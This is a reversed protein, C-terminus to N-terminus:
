REILYAIIIGVVLLPTIMTWSLANLGLVRGLILSFPTLIAGVAPNYIFVFACFLTFLIQLLLGFEAGEFTESLDLIFKNITQGPNIKLYLEAEYIRGNLVEHNFLLVGSPSTSCETGLLEKNRGIRFVRLCYESGINSADNYEARFNNTVNNYTILSTIGLLDFFEGAILGFRVIQINLNDATVYSPNTTRVVVGDIEIIFRYYEANKRINFITEGAFDTERVEQLLYSNTMLDYKLSKVVAGEVPKAGEDIVTVTIPSSASANVLYITLTSYSRNDVKTMYFGNAYNETQYRLVYSEPVLFTLNLTGTTTTHNYSALDGIMEFSISSTILQKTLDDRFEIDISNTKYFSFNLNMSSQNLFVIQENNFLAYNDADVFVTYNLDKKLNLVVFGSTSSFSQNVGFEANHVWGSFNNVVGSTIIDFVSVNLEADHIEANLTKTSRNEIVSTNYHVDYYGTKSITINYYGTKVELPLDTSSYSQENMIFTFNTVPQGTGSALLNIDLYAQVLTTNLPTTLDYNNFTKDFYDNATLTFSETTRTPDGLVGRYEGNIFEHTQEHVTILGNFFSSDYADSVILIFQEAEGQYSTDTNVVDNFNFHTEDGVGGINYFNANYSGSFLEIDPLIVGNTTSYSQGDIDVSFTNISTSTNKDRLSISFQISEYEVVVDSLLPSMGVEFSEFNARYQFYRNDTLSSLNSFSSDVFGTIWSADSCDNLECSRVDFTLIPSWRTEGSGDWLSGGYLDSSLGVVLQSSLFLGFLFFLFLGRKKYNKGPVHDDCAGNVVAVVDENM